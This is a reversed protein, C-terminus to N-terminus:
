EGTERSARVAERRAARRRKLEQMRAFVTRRDHNVMRLMRFGLPRITAEAECLKWLRSLLNRDLDGNELAYTDLDFAITPAREKKRRWVPTEGPQGAYLRETEHLKIMDFLVSLGMGCARQDGTEGIDAFTTAASILWHVPLEDALREGQERWLRFFLVSAAPPPDRRRLIAVLTAHLLHIEPAGAFLNRLELRKREASFRPASDEDPTEGPVIRTWYPSLDADAPPLVDEAGSLIAQKREFRDVLAYFGGAYIGDDLDPPPQSM